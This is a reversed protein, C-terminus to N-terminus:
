LTKLYELVARRDDPSLVDGYLHGGNGYGVKTTDYIKRKEDASAVAYGDATHVEFRWGLTETDYDNSDFTRSWFAPRTSSELMAAITPVSGNHLYPATAWIGDLPPAVYGDQPELRATRGYFSKKFWEIFVTAFQAGKALTPDTGITDTAIWLNPYEENKGYTGHCQACTANFVEEGRDALALDVEHKWKPAELSSIFARVHNFEKDIDTVEAVTDACFASATMMIRAHDGRGAASYFMAHKKKMRWWPPTDTPVVELSGVDILPTDSWNLTVPDRHAFLIAALNDAPNVGITPTTVYPAVAEARQRFKALESREEDTELLPELLAFVGLSEQTNDNASNGLGMILEGEFHGMHCGLCNPAVVDVGSATRTVTLGHHVDANMGTRGPVAELPGLFAKYADYARYPIGCRVNDGNLLVDLGRKPDGSRQAEEQISTAGAPLDKPKQCAASSFLVLAIRLYPSLMRSVYRAQASDDLLRGEQHTRDPM